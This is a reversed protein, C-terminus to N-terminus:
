ALTKMEQKLVDLSVAIDQFHRGDEFVWFPAVSLVGEYSFRRDWLAHHPITLHESELEVGEFLLIDMDATRPMLGRKDTRGLNLEIQQLLTLLGWADANYEILVVRNLYVSHTSDVGVPETEYLPSQALITSVQTLAKEMERMYHNRDGLNSGLSIVVKAM